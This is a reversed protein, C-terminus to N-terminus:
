DEEEEEEEEEEGEAEEAEAEEGGEGVIEKPKPLHDIRWQEEEAGTPDMVELIEPGVPYEQQVTPLPSPSFNHQMYKLGNGIYINHFTKGQTSFAYAGPWLNSRVVALAYMDIIESSTRVSWPTVAELSADESLPTLLPPGTEPEAKPAKEKDEEDEEGLEEGLEEDEVFTDPTPNWWSIRGQPLIYPASHVWFSMSRDTLDKLSPPDYKSNIKYETKAQDGPEEEGVEEEEAGEGAEEERFTYYGLPAIQTGASIRSIQARLYNKEKGPFEPYTFIDKELDGTFSKYIQRAMRIEKPTTDPLQIWSDGTKCCVFYIKKNLGVGSPEIPPEPPEEYQIKPMPPLPRPIKSKPSEGVMEEQNKSIDKLAKDLEEDGTVLIKAMEEQKTKEEYEENRKMYEDEKLEAELVLYHNFKGFIKGWFRIWSIPETHIMKRMSLMVFAMDQRPLGLGIQELYYLLEMMNNRSMDALELDEPDVTSPAQPTLPKLATMISTSLQLRSPEVFVDELHDTLPRYRREKVKRSYEEFFDIINEPREALIKNLVETLHDYLNDGTNTSATQLFAKANFFEVETNPETSINEDANPDVNYDYIM